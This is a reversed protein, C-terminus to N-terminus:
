EAFFDDPPQVGFGPADCPTLVGADFPLGRFPDNGLLWAGDLDAYDAGQAVVAAAAINLSSELRCGAMVKLGLARARRVMALAPTLGGCKGIKINFGSFRGPMREVQELTACSEDAILPLRPERAFPEMEADRDRPLPQEIFLVGLDALPPILARLDDATWAGNADVAITADFRERVRRVADLDARHDMKIKILPHGHLEALKAEIEHEESIGITAFSHLARPKGGWALEAVSRGERRALLDWLAVDLACQASRSPQVVRWAEQWAAELDAVSRISLGRLWGAARLLKDRTDDATEGFFRSPVAEGHGTFGDRDEIRIFISHSERHTTHGVRFVFRPVLTETRCLLKLTVRFIVRRWAARLHCLAAQRSPMAGDIGHRTAQWPLSPGSGEM